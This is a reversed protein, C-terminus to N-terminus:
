LTLMSYVKLRDTFEVSNFDYASPTYFEPLLDQISANKNLEVNLLFVEDEFSSLMKRKKTIDILYDRRSNIRYVRVSLDCLVFENNFILGISGINGDKDTFSSMYDLSQLTFDKNLTLTFINEVGNSIM